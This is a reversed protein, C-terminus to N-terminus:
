LKVLIFTDTKSFIILADIYHVTFDAYINSDTCYVQVAAVLKNKSASSFWKVECSLSSSTGPCQCNFVYASPNLTPVNFSSNQFQKKDKRFASLLPEPLCKIINKKNQKKLFPGNHFFIIKQFSILLCLRHYNAAPFQFVTCFHDVPSSNIDEWSQDGNYYAHGDSITRQYLDCFLKCGVPAPLNSIHGWVLSQWWSSVSVM